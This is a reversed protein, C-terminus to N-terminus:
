GHVPRDDPIDLAELLSVIEEKFQEVEEPDQDKHRPHPVKWSGKLRDLRSVM